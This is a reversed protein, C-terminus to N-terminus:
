AKKEPKSKSYEAKSSAHHKAATKAENKSQRGVAANGKGPPSASTKNEAQAPSALATVFLVASLISLFRKM